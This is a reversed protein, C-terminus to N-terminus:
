VEKSKKLRAYNTAMERLIKNIYFTEIGFDRCKPTFSIISNAHNVKHSELIIEFGIKSKENTFYYPDIMEKALEKDVKKM